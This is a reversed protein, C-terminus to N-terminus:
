NRIKKWFEFVNRGNEEPSHDMILQMSAHQDTNVCRRLKVLNEYYVDLSKSMETENLSDIKRRRMEHNDACRQTIRRIIAEKHLDCNVVLIKNFKGFMSEILESAARNESMHDTLPISATYQILGEELLIVDCDITEYVRVLQDYLKMLRLADLLRSVSMKFQLLFRVIKLNVHATKYSFLPRIFHLMKRLRTTERYFYVDQLTLVHIGEARLINVLENVTTTKGCGPLGNFEM